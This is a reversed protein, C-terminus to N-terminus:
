FWVLLLTNVGCWCCHILVAGAATYKRRVLLLTGAGCWCCHTQAVGPPLATYWCWVLLLADVGCWGDDWGQASARALRCLCAFMWILGHQTFEPAM